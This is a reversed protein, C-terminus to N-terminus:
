TNVVLDRGPLAQFDGKLWAGARVPLTTTNADPARGLLDSVIRHSECTAIEVAYRGTLLGGGAFRALAIPSKVIAQYCAQGPDSAARFQKLGVCPLIPQLRLTHLLDSTVGAFFSTVLGAAAEAESKWSLPSARDAGTRVVRYLVADEGKTDPDFTRFITTTCFFEDNGPSNAPVGIRAAAKPWGWVERGTVLGIAYNVFIYPSWFVVRAGFASGPRREVLPVWIACERGPVWGLRDALSTSRASDLFSLMAIPLVSEYRLTGKGAPNLLNDALTQIAKRDADIVFASIIADAFADPPALSVAGHGVWSIFPKDTM